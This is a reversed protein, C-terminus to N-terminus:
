EAEGHKAQWAKCNAPSGYSGRPAYNYLFLAYNHMNRQNTGDARSFAEMLDNDLLARLFHGSPVGELFWRELGDWMYEPVLHRGGEIMDKISALENEPLKSM